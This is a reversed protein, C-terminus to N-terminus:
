FDHTSLWDAYDGLARQLPWASEYGLDAGASAISFHGQLDL